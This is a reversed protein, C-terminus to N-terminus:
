RSTTYHEALEVESQQSEFEELLTLFHELVEGWGMVLKRVVLKGTGLFHARM